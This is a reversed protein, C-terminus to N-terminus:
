RSVGCRCGYRGIAGACRPCWAPAMTGVPADTVEAIGGVVLQEARIPDTIELVDGPRAAFDAGALSERFRLRVPGSFMLKRKRLGLM